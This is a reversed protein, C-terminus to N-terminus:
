DAAVFKVRQQLFDKQDKLKNRNSEYVKDPALVEPFLPGTFSPFLPTTRMEWLEQM